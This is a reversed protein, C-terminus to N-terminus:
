SACDPQRRAHTHTHTGYRIPLPLITEEEEEEVKSSGEEEKLPLSKLKRKATKKRAEESREEVSKMLLDNIVMMLTQKRPESRPKTEFLIWRKEDEKQEREKKRERSSDNDGKRLPPALPFSLCEHSSSSSLFLLSANGVQKSRM